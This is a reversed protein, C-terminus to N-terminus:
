ADEDSAKLIVLRWQASISCLSKPGSFPPPLRFGPPPGGGGTKEYTNMRFPKLNMLILVEILASELSSLICLFQAIKVGTLSLFQPQPSPLSTAACIGVLYQVLSIHTQCPSNVPRTRAQMSGGIAQDGNLCVANCINETSIRRVDEDSARLIVGRIAASRHLDQRLVSLMDTSATRCSKTATSM